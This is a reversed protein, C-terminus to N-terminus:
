YGWRRPDVEGYRFFEGNYWFGDFDFELQGGFIFGQSRLEDIIKKRIKALDIGIEKSKRM